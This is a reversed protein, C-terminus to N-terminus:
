GTGSVNVNDSNGNGTDNYIMVGQALLSGQGTFSFGGGDMYYIGPQLTLSATGSASIGGRYVGPSLTTSGQTFQQKNNSQLTMPNKHPLPTHTLPDPTPRRRTYITGQFQAGGTTTYGGTIDFEPAVLIGGGNGIAAEPDSSDVIVPTNSVTSLGGGSSNFAGK